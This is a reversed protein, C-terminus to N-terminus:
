SSWPEGLLRLEPELMVGFHRDVMRQTHEMLALVQDCSAYGLNVIFNAHRTSIQADGLRVGKLGAEDILRGASAGPPNKFACGASPVRLDQTSNRYALSTRISAAAEEPPIRPFELDVDTVIGPEIATYRYGFHIADPTLQRLTGDMSVLRVKRVYRGIDQANMIVAGGVHGPLGAFREVSGWGHRAGLYVLRQTLLAAGCRVRVSPEDPGSLEQVTRFGRGLHVILGRVGRDAALTNTGGGVTGVPVGIRVAEQLVAVLENLNQPEAFWEAPGGIRFSTHNALPESPRVCSLPWSM